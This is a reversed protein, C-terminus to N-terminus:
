KSVGRSLLTIWSEYQKSSTTIEEVKENNGLITYVAILVANISLLAKYYKVSDDKDHDYSYIDRNANEVLTFVDKKEIINLFHEICWSQEISKKTPLSSKPYVLNKDLENKTTRTKEINDIAETCETIIKKLIEDHIAKKLQQKCEDSSCLNTKLKDCNKSENLVKILVLFVHYYPNDYNLLYNNANKINFMDKDDVRENYTISQPTESNNLKKIADKCDEIISTYYTNKADYTYNIQLYADVLLLNIKEKTNKKEEDTKETSMKKIANNADYILGRFDANMFVYFGPFWKISEINKNKKLAELANECDEIIKKYLWDRIQERNRFAVAVGAAVGAALGAAVVATNSGPNKEKTTTKPVSPGKRGKGAGVIRTACGAAVATNGSGKQNKNTRPSQLGKHGKSACRKRSARSKRGACRKKSAGRKKSERYSM